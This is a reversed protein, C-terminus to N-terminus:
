PLDQAPPFEVRAYIRSLALSAEISSIDLTAGLDDYERVTWINGSTRSYHEIRVDQQDVLIYDTLSDLMKYYRMKLGRDFKETSPSLIEFIVQPNLLIDQRSDALQPDGCVVSLDPYVYNKRPLKVRLDSGLVECGPRRISSALELHLNHQLRLHQLSTGAMAFVQGDFFESKFEAQREMALYQEETLTSFSPATM